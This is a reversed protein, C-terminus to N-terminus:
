EGKAIRELESRVTPAHNGVGEHHIALAAWVEEDTLASPVLAGQAALRKAYEDMSMPAPNGHEDWGIWDATAKRMAARLAAVNRENV